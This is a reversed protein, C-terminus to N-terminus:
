VLNLQQLFKLHFKLVIVEIKSIISTICSTTVRLLILKWFCPRTLKYICYLLAPPISIASVKVKSSRQSSYTLVAYCRWSIPWMVASLMSFRTRLTNYVVSRTTPSSYSIRYGRGFTYRYMNHYNYKQCLEYINFAVNNWSCIM